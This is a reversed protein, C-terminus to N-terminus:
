LVFDFGTEMLVPGLWLYISVNFLLGLFLLGGRTFAGSASEPLRFYVSGVILAIVISTGYSTYIGFKDQFKLIM